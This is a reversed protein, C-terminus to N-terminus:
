RLDKLRRKLEERIQKKYRRPDKNKLMQLYWNRKGTPWKPDFALGEEWKWRKNKPKKRDPSPNDDRNGDSSRETKRYEGVFTKFERQLSGLSNTLDALADRLKAVERESAANAEDTPWRAEQLQELGSDVAQQIRQEVNDNFKDLIKDLGKELAAAASEFGNGRTSNGTLRSVEALGRSEEEFFTKAQAYTQDAM